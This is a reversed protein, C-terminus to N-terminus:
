CENLLNACLSRKFISPKVDPNILICLENWLVVGYYKIFSKSMSSRFRPPHLLNCQRTERSHIDRNYLFFSDFMSPM